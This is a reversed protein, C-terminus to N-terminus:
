QLAGCGIGTSHGVGVCWAFRLQEATGTILVPCVSARCKVDKYSFLKIDPTAYSRDFAVSLGATSLGARELKHSLAATLVSDALPDNHVLHKSPLFNGQEDLMIQKLFVPSLLRFPQQGDEFAPVARLQADTVVLGYAHLLPDRVIGALLTHILGKDPASISWTAGRPFALGAKSGKGGRLWSYSYLSLNEHLEPNHGSWRHFAGKLAPLHDFPLPEPCALKLELRM